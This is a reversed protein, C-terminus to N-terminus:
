SKSHVYEAAFFNILSVLDIVPLSTYRGISDIYPHLNSCELVLVKLSTHQRILSQCSKVVARTVEKFTSQKGKLIGEYFPTVNELGHIIVETPKVGAAALHKSNLLQSDSTIVGIRGEGSYVTKLLPIAILASTLVTAQVSRSLFKQLLVALGCSTAIIRA